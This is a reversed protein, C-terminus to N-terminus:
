PAALYGAAVGLLWSLGAVLVVWRLEFVRRPTPVIRVDPVPATPVRGVVPSVATSEGGFRRAPLHGGSAIASLADRMEIASQFRLAAERELAKAFFPQWHAFQPATQEIPRADGFLVAMMREYETQGEFARRGTILEYFLVGISFLDSRQDADKSNKVQEPSMYGPTGLLMGTKTKRASGGAAEIVRSIGFDLLRVTREQGPCVFVNDPKLDRHVIGVAHAAALTDLLVTVIQVAQDIPVPGRNMAASLPHGLLLETVLYPTGDEARFSGFVRVVGPHQIREALPAEALFRDVVEQDSKFEAKLVKIAVAPAGDNPEGRFVIALGGEGLVATLRYRQNLVAGVLAEAEASKNM